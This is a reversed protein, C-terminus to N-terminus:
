ASDALAERASAIGRKGVERTHPDLQWRHSARRRARSPGAPRDISEGDLLAM